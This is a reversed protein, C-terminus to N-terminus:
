AQPHILSVTDPLKHNLTSADPATFDVVTRGDPSVVMLKSLGEPGGKAEFVVEADGDSANQEFHVRAVAFSDNPRSGKGGAALALGYCAATLAAAGALTRIQKTMEIEM